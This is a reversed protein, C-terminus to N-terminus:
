PGRLCPSRQLRQRHLRPRPGTTRTLARLTSSGVGNRTATTSLATRHSKRGQRADTAGATVLPRADLREGLQPGPAAAQRGHVGRDLAESGAERNGQRHGKQHARRHDGRRGAVPCVHRREVRLRVAVSAAGRLVVGVQRAGDSRPDGRFAPIERHTGSRRSRSSRRTPTGSCNRTRPRTRDSSRRSAGIPGTPTPEGRDILVRNLVDDDGTAERTRSNGSFRVREPVERKNRVRWTAYPGDFYSCWAIDFDSTSQLVTM